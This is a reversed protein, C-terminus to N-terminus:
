PTVEIATNERFFRAVNLLYSVDGDSLSRVTNETRGGDLVYAFYFGGDVHEGPVEEVLVRGAAVAQEIAAAWIPPFEDRFVEVEVEDANEVTFLTVAEDTECGLQKLLDFLFEWETLNMSLSEGQGWM